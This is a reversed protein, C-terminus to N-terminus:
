SEEQDALLAEYIVRRSVGSEDSAARAADSLSHGEAILARGIMVAEEDSTTSPVGGDLVLTIEGRVDGSWHEVADTLSGVWVEEHLKTMERAVAVPRTGEIHSALDRLDDALRNPSAFLVVPRDEDAIRVLRQAREKGRRPLFGEFAFRDAGFGAVALASTVASPGPVVSVTLGEQHVRAVVRAGPDSVSPMGADSVLVVTKGGKVEAIVEESRKAENGEFLSRMPTSAGIASLLKGTRRTDEAYIM